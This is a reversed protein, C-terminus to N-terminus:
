CCLTCLVSFSAVYPVCSLSVLLMPYVNVLDTPWNSAHCVCKEELLYINLSWVTIWSMTYRDYWPKASVNIMKAHDYHIQINYCQFLFPILGTFDSIASQLVTTGTLRHPQLTHWCCSISLFDINQVTFYHKVICISLYLMYLMLVYSVSFLSSTSHHQVFLVSLYRLLFWNKKDIKRKVPVVTRWLAM